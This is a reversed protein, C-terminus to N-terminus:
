TREMLMAVGQGHGVCMAAVGLRAGSQKLSRALTLIIRVGSMGLPHGL